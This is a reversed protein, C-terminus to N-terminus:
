ELCSRTVQRFLLNAGLFAFLFALVALGGSSLWYDGGLYAAVLGAFLVAILAILADALFVILRELGRIRKELVASRSAAEERYRGICLGYHDVLREAQDLRSELNVIEGAKRTGVQQEIFSRRGALDATTM